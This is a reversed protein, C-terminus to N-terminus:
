RERKSSAALTTVVFSRATVAGGAYLLALIGAMMLYGNDPVLLLVMAVKLALQVISIKLAIDPRGLALLAPRTWFLGSALGMGALLILYAPFAPVFEAGYFTRILWPMAAVSFPTVIGIWAAAILTARKLTRRSRDPQTDVLNALEPYIAQGLAAIPLLVLNILSQAVRYYGVESLPRLVSLFLPDSDKVLLGLTASANTSLAFRMMPRRTGAIATFHTQWWKSGLARTAVRVAHASMALGPVVKGAMHAFAVERLGGQTLYIVAIGATTVGVSALTTLAVSKFRDFVQLTGTASEFMAHGLISLAYIRITSGLAPENLFWEAAPRSAVVVIGFALLSTAVETTMAARLSAARRERDAVTNGRVSALYRVVFDGMRFSLLRNVATVVAIIIGLAGFGRVGLLRAALISQILALFVTLGDASIIWRSNAIVRRLIPDQRLARLTKNASDSVKRRM